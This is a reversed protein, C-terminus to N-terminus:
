LWISNSSCISGHQQRCGPVCLSRIPPFCCSVVCQPTRYGQLSHPSPPPFHSLSLALSESFSGAKLNQTHRLICFYDHCLFWICKPLVSLNAYYTTFKKYIRQLFHDYLFNWSEFFIVCAPFLQDKLQITSLSTANLPFPKSYKNKKTITLMDWPYVLFVWANTSGEPSEM